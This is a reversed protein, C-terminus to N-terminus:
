RLYANYYFLEHGKFITGYKVLDNWFVENEKKIKSFEKRPIIVARIDLGYKRKITAIFVETKEKNSGVCLVDIDSKDTQTGKTYSGFIALFDIEEEPLKSFAFLISKHKECFRITRENSYMFFAIKAERKKFDIDYVLTRGIKRSSVIKKDVLGQITRYVPEYSYGSRELLTKLTIEKGEPFFNKLINLETESLVGKKENNLTIKKRVM